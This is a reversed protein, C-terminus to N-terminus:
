KEMAKDKQNIKLPNGGSPRAIKQQTKFKIIRNRIELFEKGNKSHEHKTKGRISAIDWAESSKLDLIKEKRKKEKQKKTVLITNSLSDKM